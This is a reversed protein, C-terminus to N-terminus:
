GGVTVIRRQWESPCKGSALTYCPWFRWAGPVEVTVDATSPVPDGAPLTMTGTEVDVNEDDPNRTALFAELEIPRATDNRLTFRLTIVDGVSPTSSTSTAAFDTLELGHSSRAPGAFRFLEVM